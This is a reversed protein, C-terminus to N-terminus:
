ASARLEDLERQLNARAREEWHQAGYDTHFLREGGLLRELVASRGVRWQADTVHPLEFRIGEVNRQYREWPLALGALDADSIRAGAADRPDPNHTITVLVLRAVEDIEAPTIVGDLLRRALEASALEDDPTTNSHVADHFWFAVREIESGGLEALYSLGTELHAIGHYDRHPENWRTRLDDLIDDPLDVM